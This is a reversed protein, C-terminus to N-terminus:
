SSHPHATDRGWTASAGRYVLVGLVGAVAGLLAGVALFPAVMPVLPVGWAYILVGGDSLHGGQLAGNLLVLEMGALCGLLSAVLFVRPRRATRAKVFVVVALGFLILSFQIM